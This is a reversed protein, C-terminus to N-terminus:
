FYFTTNSYLVRGRGLALLSRSMATRPPCGHLEMVVSVDRALGAHLVRCAGADVTGGLKGVLHVHEDDAGAGRAHQEGRLQRLEGVDRRADDLAAVAAEHQPLGVADLRAADLGELRESEGLADDGLRVVDRVHVEPPGVGLVRAVDDAGRAGLVVRKM